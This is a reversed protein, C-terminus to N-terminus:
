QAFQETSKPEDTFTYDPKDKNRLVNCNVISLVFVLISFIIACIPSAGLMAAGALNQACLIISMTLYAISLGASVASFVCSLVRPRVSKKNLMAKTFSIAAITGAAFLLLFLVFIVISNTLTGSMAKIATPDEIMGISALLGILLLPATVSGTLTSVNARSDVSFINTSLTALLLISLLLGCINLVYNLINQKQTKVDMIIHLVAASALAISVLVINVISTTGLAMKTGNGSQSASASVFSFLFLILALTLLAPTLVYKSMAFEKKARINKVFAATGIAFYVTCIIIIAAVCAASIGANLYLAISMEPYYSGTALFDSIEQFQTILFYFSTSNIDTRISIFDATAIVAFTVFFSFIFLCCLAGYLISQKTIALIHYAKGKQPANDATYSKEAARQVPTGCRPCFSGSYVEGCKKCSKKGDTRAGCYTCFVSNEDIDKGCHGCQKKGDIRKGCQPCYVADKELAAGCYKCNM